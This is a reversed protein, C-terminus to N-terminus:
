YFKTYFVEYPFIWLFMLHVNIYCHEMGGVEPSFKTFFIWHLHDGHHPCFEVLYLWFTWDNIGLFSIDKFQKFCPHGKKCVIYIFTNLHIQTHMWAPTLKCLKRVEVNPIVLLCGGFCWCLMCVLAM